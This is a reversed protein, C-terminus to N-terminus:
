CKGGSCPNGGCQSKYICKGTTKNCCGPDNPNTPNVPCGGFALTAACADVTQNTSMNLFTGTSQSSSSQSIFLFIIVVVMALIAIVILVVTTIPLGQAKKLVM